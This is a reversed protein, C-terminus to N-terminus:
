FDTFNLFVLLEKYIASSFLEWDISIASNEKSPWSSSDTEFGWSYTKLKNHM